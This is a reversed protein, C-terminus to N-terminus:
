NPGSATQAAIRQQHYENLRQKVEDKVTSRISVAWRNRGEEWAKFLESMSEMTKRGVKTRYFEVLEELETESYHASGFSQYHVYKIAPEEDFARDLSSDIADNMVKRAQPDNELITGMFMKETPVFILEHYHQRVKERFAPMEGTLDVLEEILQKHRESLDDFPAAISSGFGLSAVLAIFIIGRKLRKLQMKTHRTQEIM